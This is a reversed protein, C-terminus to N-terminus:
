QLETGGKRTLYDESVSKLMPRVKYGDVDRPTTSWKSTIVVGERINAGECLTTMGNTLEDLPLDRYCGEWLVPVRNLRGGYARKDAESLPVGNMYIEFFRFQPQLFGYSLDQIGKGFVEGLIDFRHQPFAEALDMIAEKVYRKAATLYINGDNEQVNKFVLGKAGLGKSAVVISGIPDFPAVTGCYHDIVLEDPLVEPLYTIRCFTGHLKETVVVIEDPDFLTPFKKINEIDFNLASSAVYAVQGSMSAPIPPEYKVIGLDAAYDTGAFIAWAQSTAERSFTPTLPHPQLKWVLGQSLVGRLRIAKVRDGKSGALMGINKEDNWFGTQRLLDEPVVAGEPVYLILEGKYFRATGDDNKATVAEYGGIKVISLRDANPHDYIDDVYVGRVDFTSM